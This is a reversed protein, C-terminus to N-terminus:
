QEETDQIKVSIPSNVRTNVGTDVSWFKTHNAGITTFTMVRGTNNSGSRMSAGRKPVVIGFIQPPAGNQCASEGLFRGPTPEGPTAMGHLELGEQESKSLRWKWVGLAHHDDCGIGCIYSSSDGLFAIAAVARQFFGSHHYGDGLVAHIKMTAISWVIIRPNAGLQGTACVTGSQDVAIATIDDDHKIFHRQTKNQDDYIIAVAAVCYILEGRASFYLNKNIRGNNGYVWELELNVDPTHASRSMDAPDWGSPPQVSTRSYRYRMRRPVSGKAIPEVMRDGFHGRDFPGQLVEPRSNDEDQLRVVEEVQGTRWADQKMAPKGKAGKSPFLMNTLLKRDGGNCARWLTTVEDETMPKTGNETFARVVFGFDRRRLRSRDGYRNCVTTLIKKGLQIQLDTMHYQLRDISSLINARGESRLIIERRLRQVLRYAEATNAM